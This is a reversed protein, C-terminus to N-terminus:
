GRKRSCHEEWNYATEVIVDLNNYKPTWGLVSRIKDAAAVLSPADGPRRGAVEVPFDVGTVRKIAKIVEFVSTGSGYGCNLTLSEQNRELYSLADLHAEALDVVHIYDRLCSGDPTDYDDGFVQLVPRNGSVTQLAVKILHTADPFSQGIEGDLDAGAVNFYRLAVYNFDENARSVDELMWETMLKSRGYPNIPFTPTDESVNGINGAGYVAASSSFVFNAVNYKICMELLRYSNVTNNRYYGLPDRVSEPVVISGAFHLVSAIRNEKFIRELCGPDGIDGRVFEGSLISEEHGTSLNDVTVVNFGRSGLLKVVHSGIYGAGGTVLVKM